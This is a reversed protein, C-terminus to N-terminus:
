RESKARVADESLVTTQIQYISLNAILASATISDSLSVDGFICTLTDKLPVTYQKEFKGNHTLTDSHWYVTDTCQLSFTLVPRVSDNIGFAICNLNYIKSNPVSDLAFHYSNARMKSQLCLLPTRHYYITDIHLTAIRIHEQEAELSQIRQTYRVNLQENIKMYRNLHANYWVISTDFQAESINHKRFVSQLLQQRKLSDADFVVRNEKIEIEAIYLDFLVNEMQKESLVHWPRNSCAVLLLGFGILGFLRKM